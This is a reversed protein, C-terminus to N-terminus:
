GKGKGGTRRGKGGTAAAATEAPEDAPDPDAAAAPAPKAPKAKARRDAAAALHKDYVEQVHPDLLQVPIPPRAVHGKDIQDVTPNFGAMAAECYRIVEAEDVVEILPTGGVTLKGTLRDKVMGISLLHEVREDSEHYVIHGHGLRKVNGDAFTWKGDVMEGTLAENLATLTRIFKGM